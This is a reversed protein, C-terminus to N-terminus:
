NSSIHINKIRVYGLIKKTEEPYIAIHHTHVLAGSQGAIILKSSFVPMHCAICKDILIAPSLQNSLKCQTTQKSHCTLCRAAYLVVNERENVHTNHCTSCDMNSSIFCKSSKLLGTQNGHVDIVKYNVAANAPALRMYKALTDGPKFSFSPKLMHNNAGSHCVACMNIKQERTLSKFKSIFGANKVDPNDTHFKVHAAAPGHCRECDISYILSKAEFGEASTYFGPLDPPAQKVYSAHCGLCQAGIVREFVVTNSAYGPSNIWKHVNTVYSIPLQFIENTLWYAYTQGKIGGFSIDFRRSQEAKGNVYSTQYFGSDTKTMLVKMHPSFEFENSDPAFSGQITQASAPQSAVFHATHLYSNSINKHCKICSVSGIYTNGRPDEDKKLNICQSFITILPVLFVAFLLLKKKFM